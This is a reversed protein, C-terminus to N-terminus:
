SWSPWLRWYHREWVCRRWRGCQIAPHPDARSSNPACALAHALRVNRRRLSLPCLSVRAPAARSAPRLETKQPLRAIFRAMAKQRNITVQKASCGLSGDNELVPCRFKFPKDPADRALDLFHREDSCPSVRFRNVSIAERCLRVGINDADRQLLGSAM